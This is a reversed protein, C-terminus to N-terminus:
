ARGIMGGLVAVALLVVWYAAFLENEWLKIKKWMASGKVPQQVWVEVPGGHCRPAFIM